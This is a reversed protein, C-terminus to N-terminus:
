FAAIIQHATERGTIFAAEVTGIEPGDFLAEGAFYVTNLLPEKLVKRIEPGNVVEYAYGGCNFPDTAWNVVHWSKLQKQLYSTEIDFIGHLSHLAKQLIIEESLKKLREANPGALWGTLVASQRPFQTWWTPIEAESFLFSLDQLDKKHMLKKEMWFSSEFQLIIKIVPGFGLQQAAAIKGDIKPAFTILGAQLVGLPVTILVKGGYFVEKDTIIEVNREKWNIQKVVHSLYAFCGKQAVKSYLYEMLKKYGGEIRYQESDSQALEKCLAFTSAKHTDAANYGKVYNELTFRLENYKEETLHEKVFQAVSVDNM